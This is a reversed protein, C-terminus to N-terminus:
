RERLAGSFRRVTQGDDSKQGTFSKWGPGACNMTSRLTLRHKEPIRPCVESLPIKQFGAGMLECNIPEVFMFCPPPTGARLTFRYSLGQVLDPKSWKYWLSSVQCDSLNYKRTRFPPRGLAANLDGLQDKSMGYSVRFLVEFHPEEQGRAVLTKNLLVGAYLTTM